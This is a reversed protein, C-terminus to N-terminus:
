SMKSSLRQYFEDNLYRMNKSHIFYSVKESCNMKKLLTTIKVCFALIILVRFLKM